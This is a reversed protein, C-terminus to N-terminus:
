RLIAALALGLIVVALWVLLARVARRDGRSLADFYRLWNM